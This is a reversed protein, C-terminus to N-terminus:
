TEADAKGCDIRLNELSISGDEITIDAQLESLLRSVPEAFDDVQNESSFVAQKMLRIFEASQEKTVKLKLGVVAM